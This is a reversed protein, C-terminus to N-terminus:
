IRRVRKVITTNELKMHLNKLIDDQVRPVATATLALMPVSALNSHSRIASGIKLFEPRFDHGQSIYQYFMVHLTLLHFFLSLTSVYIRLEGM